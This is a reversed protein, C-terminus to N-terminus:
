SGPTSPTPCSQKNQSTHTHTHTHKAPYLTPDPHVDIMELMAHQMCRGARQRSSCAGVHWLFIFPNVFFTV